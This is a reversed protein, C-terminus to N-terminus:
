RGTQLLDLPFTLFTAIFFWCFSQSCVGSHGMYQQVTDASSTCLSILERDLIALHILVLRYSCTLCKFSAFHLSWRGFLFLRIFLCFFLGFFLRCFVFFDLYNVLAVAANKRCGYDVDTCKLLWLNLKVSICVSNGSLPSLMDVPCDDKPILLLEFFIFWDIFHLTLAAKLYYYNSTQSWSAPQRPKIKTGHKNKNLLKPLFCFHSVNIWCCLYQLLM